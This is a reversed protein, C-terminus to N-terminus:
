KGDVLEFNNLLTARSVLIETEYLVPHIIKMRVVKGTEEMIEFEEGADIDARTQLFGGIAKPHATIYHVGIVYDNAKWISGIITKNKKEIFDLVDQLAADYGEDYLQDREDVSYENNTFLKEIKDKLEKLKVENM